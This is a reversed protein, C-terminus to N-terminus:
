CHKTPFNNTHFKGTFCDFVSQIFIHIVNDFLVTTSLMANGLGLKIFSTFFFIVKPYIPM